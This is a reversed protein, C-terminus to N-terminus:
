YHHSKWWSPSSEGPSREYITNLEKLYSNRFDEQIALVERQAEVDERLSKRCNQYNNKLEIARAENEVPQQSIRALEKNLLANEDHLIRFTENITVYIAAINNDLKAIKGLLAKINELERIEHADHARAVYEMVTQVNQYIPRLWPDRTRMNALLYKHRTQLFQKRDLQDNTLIQLLATEEFVPLPPRDQEDRDDTM